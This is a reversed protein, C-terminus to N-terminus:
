VKVRTLFIQSSVKLFLSRTCSKYYNQVCLFANMNIQCEREYQEPLGLLTGPGAAAQPGRALDPGLWALLALSGPM